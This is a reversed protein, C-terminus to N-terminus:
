LNQLNSLFNVENVVSSKKILLLFIWDMRRKWKLWFMFSMWTTVVFNKITKPIRLSYKIRLSIVIFLIFNNFKTQFIMSKEIYYKWDNYKLSITMWESIEELEMDNNRITRLLFLLNEPIGHIRSFRQILSERL